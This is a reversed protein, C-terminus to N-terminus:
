VYGVVWIESLAIRWRVLLAVAMAKACALGVRLPSPVGNKSAGNGEATPLVGDM